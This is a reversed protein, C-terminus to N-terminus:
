FRNAAFARIQKVATFLPKHLFLLGLTQFKRRAVYHGFTDHPLLLVRVATVEVNVDLMFVGFGYFRTSVSRIEEGRVAFTDIVPTKNVSHVFEISFEDGDVVPWVGYVVQSDADSISM